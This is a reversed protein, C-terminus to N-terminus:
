AMDCMGAAMGGVLVKVHMGDKAAHAMPEYAQSMGGAHRHAESELNGVMCVDAQVVMGVPM